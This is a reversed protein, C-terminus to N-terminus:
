SELDVLLEEDDPVAALISDLRSVLGSPVASAAPEYGAALQQFVDRVESLPVLTHTNVGWTYGVDYESYANAAGPYERVLQSFPIYQCSEVVVGHLKFAV